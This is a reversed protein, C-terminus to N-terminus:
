RENAPSGTGEDDNEPVTDTGADAGDGTTTEAETIHAQASVSDLDVGVERAVADLVARQEAVENELARVRAGTDNVTTQTREVEDRLDNLRKYTQEAKDALTQIRKATDGFGM